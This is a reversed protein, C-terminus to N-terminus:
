QEQTGHDQYGGKNIITAKKTSEEVYEIYVIIIDSFVFLKERKWDIYMKNKKGAMNWHSSGGAHLQIPTTLIFM